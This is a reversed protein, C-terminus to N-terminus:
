RFPTNASLHLSLYYGNKIYLENKLFFTPHAPMWGCYFSYKGYDTSRWNRIAKNTNNSDVYHLDGHICDVDYTAFAKAVDTLVFADKYFDDSNLVAIVDGTTKRLAINIANYIGNDHEHYIKVRPDTISDLISKTKADSSNDQIILELNQFDQSLVSDVAETITRACNFSPMIISFKM